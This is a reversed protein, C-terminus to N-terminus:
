GGIKTVKGQVEAKRLAEERAAQEQKARTIEQYRVKLGQTNQPQVMDLLADGDIVGRDFLEFGLNRQEEMFVPSSSHGDVKAMYDGTFHASLFQAGLKGQSDIEHLPRSNHAQDLKLYLTAIRELSDEIILARKKPRASGARLLSDTQGKSRVGADGRGMSLNTLASAELFMEDDRNVLQWLDSPVQPKFEKIDAM